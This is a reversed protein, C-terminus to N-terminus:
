VVSKRDLPGRKKYVSKGIIIRKIKYLNAYRIIQNAVDDAYIIEIDANLNSAAEINKDLQRQETENLGQKHNSVYVAIMKDNEHLSRYAKQIVQMNSPSPSLCVLITENM